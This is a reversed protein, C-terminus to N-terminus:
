SLNNRKMRENQIEKIKNDILYPNNRIYRIASDLSRDRRFMAIDFINIGPLGAIYQTFFYRLTHTTFSYILMSDAELKAEPIGTAELRIILESILKNFEDEYTSDTMANGDRNMFMAGYKNEKKYTNKIFKMHERLILDFYEIFVPHVHAIEPSKIEGVNVGDSRLEPKITLDVSWDKLKDGVYLAQTNYHTVNCVEGRRLGAFAQLAVALLIMPNRKLILALLENLAFLSIYELRKRKKVELYHIVFLSKLYTYTRQKGNITKTVTVYEFNEEKILRMEYYSYLYNYFNTLYREVIQISSKTKNANEGVKGVKYDNLFKNGDNISLDEIRNLNIAFLEDNRDHIYEREFFIYNLFMTIYRAYGLRTNKDTNVKKLLFDSYSTIEVIKGTTCDELVILIAYYTTGGDLVPCIRTKYRLKGRINEGINVVKNM